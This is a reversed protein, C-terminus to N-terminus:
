AKPFLKLAEHYTLNSACQKGNKLVILAISKNGVDKVEKVYSVDDPNVCVCESIKVMKM